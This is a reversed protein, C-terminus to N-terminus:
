SDQTCSYLITYIKHTKTCVWLFGQPIHCLHAACLYLLVPLHHCGCLQNSSVFYLCTECQTRLAM